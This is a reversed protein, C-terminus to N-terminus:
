KPKRGGARGLEWLVRDELADGDHIHSSTVYDFILHVRQEKTAVYAYVCTYGCSSSDVQM